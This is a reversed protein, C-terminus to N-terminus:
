CYLSRSEDEGLIDYVGGEIATWDWAPYRDEAVVYPGGGEAPPLPLLPPIGLDENLNSV